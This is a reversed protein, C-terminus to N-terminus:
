RSYKGWLAENDGETMRYQNEIQTLQAIVGQLQTKYGMLAKLANEQTDQNFKKATESSVPDGAWPRANLVERADDLANTLQDLAHQFAARTQPIASPDVSLKQQGSYTPPLQGSGGSDALFM